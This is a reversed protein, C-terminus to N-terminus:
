SPLGWRGLLADVRRDVEEPAGSNDVVDTARAAKEALTLQANERDELDKAGWGRGEALRRLRVARPADVFVVRDCVGDWGAELLVAADLVVLRVSPDAEAAAAEERFRRGIYPHVLTELAKLEARGHPTKAFVIGAVKRRSIEGAEDLVDTGWREVLRAKIDSQRLAEHGLADGSVVKAGHRAFAAAVTSKGGGIGGILGVILKAM